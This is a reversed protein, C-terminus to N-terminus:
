RGDDPKALERGVLEVARDYATLIERLSDPPTSEEWRAEGTRLFEGLLSVVDVLTWALERASRSREHPRFDLHGEPLAELV